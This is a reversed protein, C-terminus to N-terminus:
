SIMCQLTQPQMLLSREELIRLGVNGVIDFKDMRYQVGVGTNTGLNLGVALDSKAVGDTAATAPVLVLAVLILALLVKKM